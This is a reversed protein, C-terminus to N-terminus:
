STCSKSGFLNSVPCIYDRLPRVAFNPRPGRPLSASPLALAARPLTAGVLGGMSHAVVILHDVPRDQGSVVALSEALLEARRHTVVVAVVKPAVAGDTM